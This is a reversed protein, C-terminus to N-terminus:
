RIHGGESVSVFTHETVAYDVSRGRPMYGDNRHSKGRRAQESVLRWWIVQQEHDPATRVAQAIGDQVTRGTVAPLLVPEEADRDEGSWPIVQHRQALRVQRDTSSALDSGSAAARKTNRPELHCRREDIRTM